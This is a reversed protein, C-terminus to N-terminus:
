QSAVAETRQNAITVYEPSIDVGIYGRGTMLAMKPTTGSGCMPDFVAWLLVRVHLRQVPLM